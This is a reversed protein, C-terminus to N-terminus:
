PKENVRAKISRDNWRDIARAPTTSFPGTAGCGKPIHCIVTFLVLEMPAPPAHRLIFPAREFCFPCARVNAGPPVPVGAFEAGPDPMTASM